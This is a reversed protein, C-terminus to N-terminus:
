NWRWVEAFPNEITLGEILQGDQLDESYLRNCGPDLAAAILDSSLRIGPLLDDGPVSAVLGERIAWTVLKRM